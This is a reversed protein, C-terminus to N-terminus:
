QGSDTQVAPPILYISGSFTKDSNNRSVSYSQRYLADGSPYEAESVIIKGFAGILTSPAPSNSPSLSESYLRARVNETQIRSSIETEISSLASFHARFAAFAPVLVCGLLACAM